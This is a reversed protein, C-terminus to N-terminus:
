WAVKVIPFRSDFLVNWPIPPSFALTRLSLRERTQSAADIAGQDAVLARAIVVVPLFRMHDIAGLGVAGIDDFKAHCVALRVLAGASPGSPSLRSSRM